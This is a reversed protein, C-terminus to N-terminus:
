HVLHSTFNGSKGQIPPSSARLLCDAMSQYVKVDKCLAGKRVLPGLEDWDRLCVAAEFDFVLLTAMKSQLDGIIDGDLDGLRAEFASDFSEIRKRSLLYHQLQAEVNDESRALATYAAAIMFNCFMSRLSIDGLDQAPLDEPYCAISSVCAAFIRIIHRLNWTDLNQLGLNYANKCVWNIEDISFLKNGANDQPARQLSTVVTDPNTLQGDNSLFYAALVVKLLGVYIM